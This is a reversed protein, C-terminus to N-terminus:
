YQRKRKLYDVLQKIDKMDGTQIYYNDADMITRESNLLAGKPIFFNQGILKILTKRSIVGPIDYSSKQTLIINKLRDREAEDSYYLKNQKMVSAISPDIRVLIFANYDANGSELNPIYQGRENWDKKELLLLQGFSKTSKVAIKTGNIEFDFSDWVGLQYASLDPLAMSIGNKTFYDYIAFEALKGQYTDTFIEGNKRRHTGGSRRNRHAGKGGFSMNYAFNFVDELTKSDFHGLPNFQKTNTFYYIDKLKGDKTRVKGKKLKKM